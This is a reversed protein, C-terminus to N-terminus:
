CVFKEKCSEITKPYDINKIWDFNRLPTLVIM